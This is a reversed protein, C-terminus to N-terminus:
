IKVDEEDDWPILVGSSDDSVIAMGLKEIVDLIDKSTQEVDTPGCCSCSLDHHEIVLEIAKLVESKKM